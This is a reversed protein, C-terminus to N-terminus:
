KKKGQISRLAMSAARKVGRDKDNQAQKLAPVADKADAGMQGLSTAVAARVGADKDKLASIFVPVAKEPDPDIRGLAAAVAKRVGANGDDKLMELMVPVADKADAARVAGIHGLEEAASIRKKANGSKLAKLLAPVDDKKPEAYSSGAALSLFFGFGAALLVVRM